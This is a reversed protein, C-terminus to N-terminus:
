QESTMSRVKNNRSIEQTSVNMMHRIHWTLWTQTEINKACFNVSM